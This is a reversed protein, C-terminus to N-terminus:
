LRRLRKRKVIVLKWRYLGFSLYRANFFVRFCKNDYSANCQIHLLIVKFTKRHFGWGMAGEAVESAYLEKQATGSATVGKM